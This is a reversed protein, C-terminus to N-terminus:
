QWRQLQPRRPRRDQGKRKEVNLERLYKARIGKVDQSGM